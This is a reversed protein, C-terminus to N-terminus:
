LHLAKQKVLAAFLSARRMSETQEELRLEICLTAYGHVLCWAALALDDVNSPPAFAEVIEVLSHFAADAAAATEPFQRIDVLERSFMVHFLAPSSQAYNIYAAGACELAQTDDPYGAVARIADELQNFGRKVLEALLAEKNSFHNYPAQHSLKAQAAIARLSLRRAGVEELQQAAILLLVNKADGHHYTDRKLQHM